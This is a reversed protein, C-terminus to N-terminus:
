DGIKTLKISIPYTDTAEVGEPLDMVLYCEYIGERFKTVNNLLMYDDFDVRLNLDSTKVKELNQALGKLTFSVTDDSTVVEAEFGDPVNDITLNKLSVEYEKEIIEEIYVTAKLTNDSKDALRVGDPLYDSLRLVMDMDDSQGTINLESSPINISSIASIADASGAIVVTEPDLEVEGTAEFGDAPVGSVAYYVPVRKTTLIEVDVRVSDINLELNKKDVEDGDATYLIIESQTSINETFGTVSVDVSAASITDVISEPGSIRVQNQSPMVDGLIYGSEIDGSTTAGIPLQINKRDEINVKINSISSRITDVKDAYKTTTIQIPVLTGDASLESMDATAYINDNTSGLEQITTRSAKITVSSIVDTEDLVELTKGEDTILNSNLIRVPVDTYTKSIVPDTANVVVLWIVIAAVLSLIKLDWNSLINEKTFKKKLGSTM